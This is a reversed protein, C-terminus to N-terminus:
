LVDRWGVVNHARGRLFQLGELGFVGHLLLDHRGSEHAWPQKLM